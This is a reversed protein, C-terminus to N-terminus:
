SHMRSRGKIALDAARIVDMPDQSKGMAALAKDIAAMADGEKGEDGVGYQDAAVGGTGRGHGARKSAVRTPGLPPLVSPPTAYPALTDLSGSGGRAPGGPGWSAQMRGDRKSSGEEKAEVQGREGIAVERAGIRASLLVSGDEEPLRHLVAAQQSGRGGASM